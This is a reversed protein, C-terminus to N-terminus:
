RAIEPAVPEYDEPKLNKAEMDDVLALLAAGAGTDRSELLNTRRATEADDVARQRRAKCCCDYFSPTCLFWVPERKGYDKPMVKDLFLGFLVFVILSFFLIFLGGRWTYSGVM